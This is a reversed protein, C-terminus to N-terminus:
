CEVTIAGSILAHTCGPYHVKWYKKFPDERVSGEYYCICNNTCAQKAVPCWGLNEGRAADLTKQARKETEFQIKM